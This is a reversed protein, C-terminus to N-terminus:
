HDIRNRRRADVTGIAAKERAVISARGSTTQRLLGTDGCTLSNRGTTATGCISRL